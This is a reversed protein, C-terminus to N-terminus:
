RGDQKIGRKVLEDRLNDALMMFFNGGDICKKIALHIDKEKIDSSEKHIVAEGITAVETIGLIKSVCRAVKALYYYFKGDHWGDRSHKKDKEKLRMEMRRAYWYVTPRVETSELIWNNEM